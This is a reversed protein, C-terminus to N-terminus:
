KFPEFWLLVRSEADPQSHTGKETSQALGFKPVDFRSGKEPIEGMM